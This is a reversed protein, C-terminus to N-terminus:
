GGHQRNSEMLFNLILNQLVFTDESSSQQKGFHSLVHLVRGGAMSESWSGRGRSKGKLADAGGGTVPGKKKKRASANKWPKGKGARFSVAVVDMGGAAKGLDESRMLVDANKGKVKIAPSQDDIKWKHSPPKTPDIPLDRVKTGDEGPEAKRAPARPRTFVGRLIPRSTMGKGPMITVDMATLQTTQPKGGNVNADTKTDSAVENPWAVEVIEVLGWDETFLYGGAEVWKKIKDITQKNMRFSVQDHVSCSPPCRYLRNTKAGLSQGKAAMENLLKLCTKCVCQTQINNCNVLITWAESLYKDANKEFDAKLVVKHPIKMGELVQEMHDYDYDHGAQKPATKPIKSSIVLIRNPNRQVSELRKRRDRNMTTSAFQGGGGSFEAGGDGGAKPLGKERQVKWYDIWNAAVDGLSEKTITALASMIRRRLEPDGKDGEAKLAKILADVGAVTHVQALQDAAMLQLDYAKKEGLIKSLCTVAHPSSNNELGFLLDRAFPAKKKGSKIIFDGLTSLAERDRFGSAGSVLQWYISMSGKGYTKQVGKLVPNLADKGGAEILGVLAEQVKGSDQSGIAANLKKSLSKADPRAFVAVGTVLLVIPLGWGLRAVKM